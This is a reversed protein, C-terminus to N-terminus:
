GVPRSSDAQVEAQSLARPYVRVEDIRGKFWERWIRNGGIRLPLDSVPMAGTVPRTAAQVGDVWLKVASGDYTMALHTWRNAALAAGGTADLDATTFVRGSPQLSATNSYLAWSFYGTREKLAVTRWGSTTTPYVWAEVTVATTLDLSPSDAVSVLDDTGDFLLASGFRGATTRATGGALTGANGNGSADATTTGSAEEFGYAAVPGAGATSNDVQVTVSAATTRNGAADRAIASLQHQGNPALRTDWQMEYPAAGDEAGLDAGDLRFQVGAVGVDDSADAKVAATGGVTAGAAPATLAVTPPAADPPGAVDAPAEASPQSANGAADRAIVRYVYHGAALPTDRFSTQSTTAIRNAASPTFGSSAARHVDYGTVGTDDNAANWSLNVSVGDAGATAALGGPATPPSTDAPPAVDADDERSTPSVNGAADQATVLYYYKGAALGTDAFSTQTTTGVRNAASATFGSTTSRHVNYRTVGVNDTAADWTLDARQSGGTATLNPPATPAETDATPVPVTAIRAVSPVGKDNVIWLLYAGPPVARANAPGEVQLTSGSRTFNLPVYRNDFDFGHTVSPSHTLAVSRISAADPTDITFSGGHLLQGPATAIAPRAGKFLYPPSFIEANTQPAGDRIRGSGAVLVRGDPLLVQTTHYMRPVQASGMQAWRDTAPDWIEASKEAFVPDIGDSAREGPGAMVTGDPLATLTHYARPQNMPARETWRPAPDNFDITAARNGIPRGPFAPDAWSGSKLIKGPRYQVSSNGDFGSTTVDTWRGTTMDMTRTTLDPGVDAVTGDPLLHLQPYLPMVRRGATLPTWTDSTVDYVEPLTDSQNTLAVPQNPNNLTINDGSAVLVRGDALTVTSPYWRERAMDAARTWSRDQWDFLTTDKLGRYALVHGGAILARGDPLNVHAACFLNRGYPVPDFSNTAPDWIRNSDPSFEFGDWVLVKGNTLVQAHVTVLPWDLRSSWQGVVAPDGGPPPPPPPPPAETTVPTGMDTQLETPTLARDYVRVEDIRGKFWEKWISNGGLQLPRDSTAIPGTVARQVVEAGNVFMRLTAGDYTAAIHTWRNTPLAAPGTVDNDAATFVRANPKGSTTSSYLAYALYGPSEKLVVTRWGSSATPYVWAELTMGATLDLTASDPVTVLDNTGDFSLARGYKGEAIRAPGNLTGANGKGSADVAATGSTEDFGYAGVLGTVAEAPATFAVFAVLAALVVRPIM